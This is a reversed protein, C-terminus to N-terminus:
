AIITLIRSKLAEHSPVGLLIALEELKVSFYGSLEFSQLALRMKDDILLRKMSIAASLYETYDIHEDKDADLPNFIDDMEEQTPAEGM